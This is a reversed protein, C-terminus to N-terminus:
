VLLSALGILLLLVVLTTVFRTAVFGAMSQAMCQLAVLKVHPQQCLRLHASLAGLEVSSDQAPNGFSATSWCRPSVLQTNM